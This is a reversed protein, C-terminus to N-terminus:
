NFEPLHIQFLNDAMLFHIMEFASFSLIEITM